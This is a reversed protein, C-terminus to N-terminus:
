GRTGTQKQRQANLERNRQMMERKSVKKVPKNKENCVKIFTLLRNLHWTDCARPINLTVMWYYIIEATIIERSRAQSEKDSFWTATMKANIYENIDSVNTKSLHTFIEPSVEPSLVMSQIYGLTEESTKPEKSLFPKEYKSEWKSLSALSHELQLTFSTLTVFEGSIEDFAETLPVIISLM